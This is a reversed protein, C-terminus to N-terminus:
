EPRADPPMKRDQGETMRDLAQHAEWGVGGLQGARYALTLLRRFAIASAIFMVLPTYWILHWRLIVIFASVALALIMAPAAIRLFDRGLPTTGMIWVAGTSVLAALIWVAFSAGLDISALMVM